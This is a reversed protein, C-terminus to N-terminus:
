LLDKRDGAKLAQVVDKVKQAKDLPCVLLCDGTDVVALDRVGVLAVLKGRPARLL